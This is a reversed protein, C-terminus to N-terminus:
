LDLFLSGSSPASVKHPMARTGYSAQLAEYSNSAPDATMWTGNCLVDNQSFSTRAGTKDGGSSPATSYPYSSVGGSTNSSNSADM